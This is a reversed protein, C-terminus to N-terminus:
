VEGEKDKWFENTAVPLNAAFAEGDRESVRPVEGVNEDTVNFYLTSIFMSTYRKLINSLLSKKKFLKHKESVM